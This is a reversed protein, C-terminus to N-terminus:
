GVTVKFNDFAAEGGETESGSVVLGFQGGPAADPIDTTAVPQGNVLATFSTGIGVVQILNASDTRIRTTTGPDSAARMAGGEMVVFAYDGNNSIAFFVCNDKDVYRLVIGMYLDKAGSVRRATVEYADYDMESVKKPYVFYQLRDAEASVHYEGNRYGAVPLGSTPSSFDDTFVVTNATTTGTATPTTRPATTASATGTAARTATAPSRTSSATAVTTGPVRTATASTTPVPVTSAGQPVDDLFVEGVGTINDGVNAGKPSKAHKAFYAFMADPTDNPFAQKYLAAAGAVHPAAASTGPFLDRGISAAAFSSVNSPAGIEPKNRGDLTPGRSSYYLPESTTADIAAVAFGGKADAPVTISREPTTLELRAGRFVIDLHLDPDSAKVKKVKLTYEGEPLKGGLIERPPVGKAQDETSRAIEKGKRDYLYLDYNVHPKTWDDWSLIILTSSEGDSRITVSDKRKGGAFDHWGDEDGDAFVAGYHGQNIDSGLTGSADNGAAIAYFIGAARATDVARSMSSTDNLPLYGGIGMSQSIVDVHATNVLWGIARVVEGESQAAALFLEADPALENIVEACATGHVTDPDDSEILGDARFSKATVKTTHLFQKYNKFGLDLVGVRVGKGTIGAAQWRDAGLLTIGETRGGSAALAQRLSVADPLPSAPQAVPTREITRVHAFDALDHFFSPRNTKRGYELLAQAPMVLEIHDDYTSTVRGGLRGVSFVTGQVLSPDASDLVLTVRVEGKTTLLGQDTAYQTAATLGQSQYIALLQLFVTSIKDQGQAIPPNATPQTTPSPAAGSGCAALLLILLLCWCWGRNVRSILRSNNM